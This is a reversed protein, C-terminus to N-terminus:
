VGKKKQGIKPESGAKLREINGRHRQFTFAVIWFVAGVLQLQAQENFIAFAALGTVASAVLAALSSYRSIAATAAWVLGFVLLLKWSLAIYVGIATAVGKGGKFGFFIPYLHGMFAAIAVCAIIPNSVGAYKALLVPAVGKLVDGLLTLIAAFKNGSRLVNTAGPNGSGVNRPDDLRFLKSVIVASSISGFLYGLVPWLVAPIQSLLESMFSGIRFSNDAFGRYNVIVANDVNLSFVLDSVWFSPYLKGAHGLM